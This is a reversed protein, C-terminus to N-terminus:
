LRDKGAPMSAARREEGTGVPVRIVSGCMTCEVADEPLPENCVPCLEREPYEDQM